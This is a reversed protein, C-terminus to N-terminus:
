LEDSSVVDFQAAYAEADVGDAGDSGPAGDHQSLWFHQYKFLIRRQAETLGDSGATVEPPRFMAVTEMYESGLCAPSLRSAPHSGAAVADVGHEAIGDAADGALALMCNTMEVSTRGSCHTLLDGICPQYFPVEEACFADHAEFKHTSRLTCDLFEAYRNHAGDCFSAAADLCRGPDDKMWEALREEESLDRLYRRRRKAREQKSRLKVTAVRKVTSTTHKPDYEPKVKTAEELSPVVVRKRPGSSGGASANADTANDSSAAATPELLTESVPVHVYKAPPRKRTTRRRWVPDAEIRAQEGDLHWRPSSMRRDEDPVERDQGQQKIRSLTHMPADADDHLLPMDDGVATEGSAPRVRSHMRGLQELRLLHRVINSHHTAHDWAWLGVYDTREDVSMDEVEDLTLDDPEKRVIAAFWEDPQGSIFRKEEWGLTRPYHRGHPHFESEPQARKARSQSLKFLPKPKAAHPAAPEAPEGSEDALGSGRATVLLLFLGLLVFAPSSVLPMTEM